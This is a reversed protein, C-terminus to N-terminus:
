DAPADRQAHYGLIIQVMDEALAFVPDTGSRFTQIVHNEGQRVGLAVRAGDRQFDVITFRSRPVHALAGYPVITAGQASLEDTLPIPVEVFVTLENGRAKQLLLNKTPGENAWSMDRSFIVVRGASSVLRRMFANIDPQKRYTKPASRIYDAIEQYVAIIQAGLVVFLLLWLWWPAETSAPTVAFFLGLVSAAAALQAVVLAFLKGM